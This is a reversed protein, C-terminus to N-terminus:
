DLVFGGLPALSDRQFVVGEKTRYSLPTAPHLYMGGELLLAKTGSHVKEGPKGEVVKLTKTEIFQSFNAPLAADEGERSVQVGSTIAKELYPWRILAHRGTEEFGGDLVLNEARAVSLGAFLIGAAVGAWCLRAVPFARLLLDIAKIIDV